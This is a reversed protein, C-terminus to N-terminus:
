PSSICQARASSCCGASVTATVMTCISSNAGRSLSAVFPVVKQTNESCNLGRRKMVQICNKTTITPWNKGAIIMVPLLIGFAWGVAHM